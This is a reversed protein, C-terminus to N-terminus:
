EPILLETLGLADTRVPGGRQQWKGTTPWCDILPGTQPHLIFHADNNHATHKIKNQALWAKVKEIKAQKKQKMPQQHETKGGGCARCFRPYGVDAGIYQCCSGCHSGDAVNDEYFSM